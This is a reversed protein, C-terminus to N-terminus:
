PCELPLLRQLQQLAEPTFQPITTSVSPSLDANASMIDSSRNQSTHNLGLLHGLEHSAVTALVVAVQSLPLGALTRARTFSGLFIRATGFRLGLPARGLISGESEGGFLITAFGRTPRSFTFRINVGRFQAEMVRKMQPLFSNQLAELPLGTLDVLPSLADERIELFAFQGCRNLEPGIDVALVETNNGEDLEPIQGGSDARVRILREAEEAVWTAEVSIAQGALLSSVSPTSIVRGDVEFSIEFHAAPGQGSNAVTARLTATQGAQPNPPDMQLDRVTLDAGTPALSSINVIQTFVNNSKNSEQIAGFPDISLRIVQEGAVAIWNGEVIEEEQSKLGTLFQTAIASRGISIRVAFNSLADQLGINRVTALIRTQEGPKPHEPLLTLRTVTLDAGFTLQTTLVNNEENSEEVRNPVDVEVRVTQVGAPVIWPSEVQVQAGAQLAQQFHSHQVRNNIKLLVWFGHADALGQNAVTARLQAADGPHVNSPLVELRTPILDPLPTADPQAAELPFVFVGGLLLLLAMAKAYRGRMAEAHPMM